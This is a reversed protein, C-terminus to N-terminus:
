KLNNCSAYISVTLLSLAKNRECDCRQIVITITEDDPIGGEADMKHIPKFKRLNTQYTSCVICIITVNKLIFILYHSEWYIGFNMEGRRHPQPQAQFQILRRFRDADICTGM